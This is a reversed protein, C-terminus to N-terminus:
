SLNGALDAAPMGTVYLIFHCPELDSMSDDRTNFGLSIQSSRVCKLCKGFCGHLVDRASQVTYQVM